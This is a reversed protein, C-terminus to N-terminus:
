DNENAVTLSLSMCGRHSWKMIQRCKIILRVQIPMKIWFDGSAIRAITIKRWKIQFDSLTKNSKNFFSWWVFFYGGAFSINLRFIEKVDLKLSYVIKIRNHVVVKNKFDFFHTGLYTSSSFTPISNLLYIIEFDFM